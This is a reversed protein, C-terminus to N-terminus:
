IFIDRNLEPIQISRKRFLCNQPFSLRQSKALSSHWQPCAQSNLFKIMKVERKTTSIHTRPWSKSGAGNTIATQLKGSIKISEHSNPFIFELYGRKRHTEKARSNEWLLLFNLVYILSAEESYLIKKTFWIVLTQLISVFINSFLIQKIICKIIFLIHVFNQMNQVTNGILLYKWDQVMNM